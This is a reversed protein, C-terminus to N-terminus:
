IWYFRRRESYVTTDFEFIDDTIAIANRVEDLASIVTKKQLFWIMPFIKKHEKELLQQQDSPMKTPSKRIKLPLKRMRSKENQENWKKHRTRKDGQLEAAAHQLNLQLKKKKVESVEREETNTGYRLDLETQAIALAAEAQEVDINLQDAELMGLIDGKKVTDGKMSSFRLFKEAKNLAFDLRPERKQVEVLTLLINACRRKTATAYEVTAKRDGSYGDEEELLLWYSFAHQGWQPTKGNRRRLVEESSTQTTDSGYKQM